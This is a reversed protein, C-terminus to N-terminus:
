RRSSKSATITNIGAKLSFFIMLFIAFRGPFDGWVAYFTVKEHLTAEVPIVAQEGYRNAKVIPRGLVDFAGSEGMNASRLVNRRYEIARLAAFLYHQKYGKTDGWWGDNTIISLINAGGAVYQRTFEGYISEYCIVPSMRVPGFEFVNQSQPRGFGYVSGGLQDVLPTLFPLYQRYPFIEAGPVLKQKHYVPITDNGILVASNYVEWHFPEQNHQNVSTRISSRKPLPGEDFVRYATVGLLIKAKSGHRALEEEVRQILPHLEPTDTNVRDFITEPLLIVDPQYEIAEALLEGYVNWKESEGQTFKEYHPEINPNIVVARISPGDTDTTWYILLSVVTPILVWAALRIGRRSRIIQPSKGKELILYLILYNVYLIWVSGGMTGTYEYWQALVPWSALANGLNLWPWSLDWRLHVHELILWTSIFVLAFYWDTDSKRHIWNAWLVTLTMLLANVVIAFIAPALASNAIWFTSLINWLLFANFTYGFFARQSIENLYRKREIYLIPVFAFFILPLFLSPPFGFTLLFGSATSLIFYPLNHGFQNKRLAMMGVILTWVGLFLFLTSKGWLPQNLIVYASASTIVVGALILSWALARVQGREFKPLWKM